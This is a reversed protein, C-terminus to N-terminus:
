GLKVNVMASETQWLHGRTPDVVPRTPDLKQLNHPSPDSRTTFEVM